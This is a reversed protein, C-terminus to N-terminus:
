REETLAKLLPLMHTLKMYGLNLSQAVEKRSHLSIDILIDKAFYTLYYYYDSIHKDQEILSKFDSYTNIKDM